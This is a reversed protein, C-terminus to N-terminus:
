RAQEPKGGGKGGVVPAIMQIIKGAHIGPTLEPSVTAVLAVNGNRAGGLVVVGKIENRLADAVSQLFDGDAEGLNKILVRTAGITQAQTALSRAIQVAEKQEAAKIKKELEKNDALLLDIKKETESLPSNIAHA